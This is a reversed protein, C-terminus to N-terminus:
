SEEVHKKYNLIYNKINMSGAVNMSHIFFEPFKVNYQQCYDCLWKACDYGTKEQFKSYDIDTQKIKPDTPISEYHEMGLDHDFAVIKPVGKNTVINVFQYYNRAILWQESKFPEYFTYHYASIFNHFEKESDKLDSKEVYPFRIDDLFLNYSM